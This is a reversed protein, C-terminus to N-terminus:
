LEKTATAYLDLIGPIEAPTADRSLGCETAVGFEPVGASRAANIRRRAGEIGDEKHLLGLYLRMGSPLRLGRLPVFYAEDDREIPVPMHVFAVDRHAAEPIGTALAALHRTDKPEVFHKGGRDGYCLHIGVPVDQPIADIYRAVRTIIGTTVDEPFAKPLLGEIMVLEPALDWQFVLQDHPIADAIRKMEAFMHREYVPELAAHHQPDVFMEVVALPTPLSVQFRQGDAIVGEDKLRSFIEYSAINEDAYLMSGLQVEDPRYGDRIQFRPMRDYEPTIFPEGEELQESAQLAPLQSFIWDNRLGTEGDPFGIVCGTLHQATSRLVEEPGALNMGGVLHAPPTVSM